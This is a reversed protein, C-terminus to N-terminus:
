NLGIRGSAYEYIRNQYFDLYGIFDISSQTRICVQFLSMSSQIEFLIKRYIISLQFHTLDIKELFILLKQFFVPSSGAASCSFLYIQIQDQSIFM